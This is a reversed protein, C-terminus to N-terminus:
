HFLNWLIGINLRFDYLPYYPATYSKNQMFTATLNQGEIFFQMTKVKMNFYVDVIPEGGIAYGSAGPLIFESVVPSYERSNFKSFYYVKLGTMVQAANKFAPAKYYLNARAILDPMPFLEKNGLASQFLLRANLNFKGANFTAEGGIQTVDLSSEAQKPQGNSNFYTYNDIKLYNVLAKADFWKLGLVGGVELVSENSFDKLAYNYNVIPSAKLLYNFSPAASQFNVHADVFYEKIPEFSLNNDVRLYNGFVKGNSFEVGSRLQFKKWLNIQLNGVAGLRSESWEEGAFIGSDSIENLSGLTLNQHRVGADLKFKDNDFILSVTNSLNKFYTKSGLDRGSELMEFYTGDNAGLNFYQKNGQHMITHRLKFPYKEPNFPSFSQSLYYRRASFRSDSDKLNVELNERNNFRSDGGLFLDLDRIGGYEENNVNQHIFHAYAEYKGNESRYHASFLTNNNAALSNTYFGQSRLGMYEIAFNFNKGVNQTYTSQLAAGNRMATHYIFSTTPTKVDYYKIQDESLYFHSKNTPLLTLAQEKKRILVLDQFGSGINAFQIKGFNDQNNYQSFTYTRDATFTTDFVKSEGYQTKFRYDEITPKFIKMSDKEGNDVVLTDSNNKLLDTKNVVQANLSVALFLFCFIYKM